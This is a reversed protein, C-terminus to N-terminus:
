GVVLLDSEVDLGATVAAFGSDVDGDGLAGANLVPQFGDELPGVLGM